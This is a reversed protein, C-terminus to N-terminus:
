LVSLLKSVLLIAEDRKMEIKTMSSALGGAELNIIIKKEKPHVEIFYGNVKYVGNHQHSEQSDQYGDIHVYMFKNERFPKYFFLYKSSDPANFFSGPKASLRIGREWLLHPPPYAL